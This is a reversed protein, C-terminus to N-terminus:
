IVAHKRFGLGGHQNSPGVSRTVVPVWKGRGLAPALFCTFLLGLENSVGLVGPLM